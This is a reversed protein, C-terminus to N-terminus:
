GSPWEIVAFEDSGCKIVLRDPAVFIGLLHDHKLCRVEVGRGTRRLRAPRLSSSPAGQLNHPLSPRKKESLPRERYRRWRGHPRWATSTRVQLLYLANRTGSSVSCWTAVTEVVEHVGRNRSGHALISMSGNPTATGDSSLACTISGCRRATPVLISRLPLPTVGTVYWEQRFFCRM